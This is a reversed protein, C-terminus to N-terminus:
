AGPDSRSGASDNVARSALDLKEGTVQLAEILQRRAELGHARRAEWGAVAATGLAVAAVAAAWQWRLPARTRDSMADNAVRSLVGRTFQEGPDVTRLAERLQKDLDDDSM